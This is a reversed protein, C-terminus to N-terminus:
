KSIRKRILGGLGLLGSGLLALSAPEPTAVVPTNTGAFGTLINSGGDVNFENVHIVFGCPQTPCNSSKTRIFDSIALTGTTRTLTFSLSVLSNGINNSTSTTGINVNYSGFGDYNSSGLTLQINNLTAGNGNVATGTSGITLNSLSSLDLAFGGGGIMYQINAGTNNGPANKAYADMTINFQVANTGIQTLNVTGAPLPSGSGAFTSNLVNFDFSDAAAMGMCAIIILAIGLTKRFM